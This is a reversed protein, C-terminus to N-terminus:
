RGSLSEAKAQRILHEFVAVHLPAAFECGIADERKWRIQSTLLQMGPIQIRLPLEPRCNPLWAIRFGSQSLDELLARAWPRTGQRVECLLTLEERKGSERNCDGGTTEVM